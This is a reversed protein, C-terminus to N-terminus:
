ENCGGIMKQLAQECEAKVWRSNGGVKIPKPWVGKSIYRYISCPNLPRSGGLMACVAKIDLLNQM